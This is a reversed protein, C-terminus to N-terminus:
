LNKLQSSPSQFGGSLSIRIYVYWGISHCGFAVITRIHTTTVVIVYDDFTYDFSSGRSFDSMTTTHTTTHTITTITLFHDPYARMWAQLM